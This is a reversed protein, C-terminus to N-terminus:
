QLALFNGMGLSVVSLLSISVPKSWDPEVGREGGSSSSDPGRIVLGCPAAPFPLPYINPPCRGRDGYGGHGHKEEEPEPGVKKLLPGAVRARSIM